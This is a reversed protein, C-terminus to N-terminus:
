SALAECWVPAVVAPDFRAVARSGAISFFARTADDALLEAVAEALLRASADAPLLLAGDGLIERAAADAPAVVPVGEAMAALAHRVDGSAPAATVFVAARRLLAAREGHGRLRQAWTDTLRLGWIERFLTRVAGEDTDTTESVGVALHPHCGLYTRLVHHAQVVRAGNTATVVDDVTLVLPAHLSVDLHHATPEYAGVALLRNRAVLAPVTRARAFNM